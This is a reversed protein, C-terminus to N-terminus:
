LPRQKAPTPLPSVPTIAASSSSRCPLSIALCVHRREVQRCATRREKSRLWQSYAPGLRPERTVKSTWAARASVRALFAFSATAGTASIKRPACIQAQAPSGIALAIGFGVACASFRAMRM